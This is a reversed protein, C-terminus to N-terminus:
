QRPSSNLSDFVELVPALRIANTIISLASLDPATSAGRRGSFMPPPIRMSLESTVMLADIKQRKLNYIQEELQTLPAAIAKEVEEASIAEGDVEALPESATPAPAAALLGLAMLLMLAWLITLTQVIRLRM